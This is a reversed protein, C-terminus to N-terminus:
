GISHEIDRIRRDAAGASQKLRAHFTKAIWRPLQDLPVVSEAAGLEIAARPMGFVTCSAEDQAATAAGVERMALLGEAGDAGMGTLLAGVGHAGAARAVSKFLVDVAPKQRHVRPGDKVVARYSSGVRRVLLHLGGPAILVRGARLEDGDRAERVELPCLGDLRKAFAATFDPPMHQTIVTAPTQEPMARLLQEIAVTGGTSAGIALLQNAPLGPMAVAQPAPADKGRKRIRARAAAKVKEILDDALDGVTYAAGPKCVVEMAGLQMAEIALASGKPTLSSVIIVPLPKYRMLKGLFTLGDMRPMEVDLTLVDPRHQVIMERAVYPDPAAGVVEINPDRGLQKTLVKRVIASDDVVLVRIKSVEANM